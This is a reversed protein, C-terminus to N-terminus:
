RAVTSPSAWRASGVIPSPCARPQTPLLPMPHSGDGGPPAGDTSRRGSLGHPQQFLYSYAQNSGGGFVLHGDGTMSAYSIRDFDDAFGALGRWGLAHWREAPLAATAFIHSHLPFLADRFYGLAGTYGNTALVIAGAEVEGQPTTLRIRRGEQVRLV